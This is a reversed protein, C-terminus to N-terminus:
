PEWRRGKALVTFYDLSAGLGYGTPLVLSGEEVREAPETMTHRWEVEYVAHELPLLAGRQPPAAAFAATVHASALLSVPGSPSHLSVSGARRAELETGALFAEVVGGCHKVDPMVIDLAYSDLLRRFTEVGYGREGGALPLASKADDRERVAEYVRRMVEEDKLPDVPEEFWGAGIARLETALATASSQDFRSHCDVFVRMEPGAADKVGRLRELGPGAERPLGASKFPARCEDFPACKLSKFGAQVARQAVAAFAEPSRDSPASAPQPAPPLSLGSSGARAVPLLARNINAYLEVRAPGASAGPAAQQSQIATLYDRLSLGSRRALADAIASRVASLGTALDLDTEFATQKIRTRGLVDQDSRVREGRLGNAIRAASNVAQEPRPSTVEALGTLGDRDRVELFTWKSAGRVPVDYAIVSTPSFWADTQSM